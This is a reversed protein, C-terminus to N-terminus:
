FLSLVLCTENIIGGSTITAINKDLYDKFCEECKECCEDPFGWSSAPNDIYIMTPPFKEVYLAIKDNWSYDIGSNLFERVTM